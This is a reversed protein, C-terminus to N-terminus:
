SDEGALWKGAGALSQNVVQHMDLYQYTGCRGIFRLNPQKRALDAYQAYLADYRGDSTKVPYFREFDNDKYDCPEEVTKVVFDTERVRHGPINHWWTERTFPGADTYNIVAHSSAHEARVDVRHFRISRYPLEGLAFDFYEDIPMANFCVDYASLMAPAFATNVRVSIRDHDFMREFARLYGEKPMAQFSDGPFYRPDRDERIQLRRVVAADMGSLDMGWMKRTYPRYFLDTLEPGIAAYLYDEASEIRARPQAKTALFAQLEAPTRLAQGFVANVTDLNVPMPALGGDPLRAVVRHEYPLWDTFRSLWDVVRQNSTHFLHPGYVHIRVGTEHVADFCNGAIHPRRDIVDVTHGADALERAYVAGALGAGVVLIKAM